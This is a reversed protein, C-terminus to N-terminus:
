RLAFGLVLVNLSGASGRYPFKQLNRDSEKNGGKICNFFSQVSFPCVDKWEYSFGNEGIGAIRADVYCKNNTYVMKISYKGQDLLPRM